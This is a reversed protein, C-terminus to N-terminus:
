KGERLQEILVKCQGESLDEFVLDVSEYDKHIMWGCMSHVLGAGTDIVVSRLTPVAPIMDSFFQRINLSTLWKTVGSDDRTHQAKLGYLQNM